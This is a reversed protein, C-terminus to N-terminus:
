RLDGFAAPGGRRLRERLVRWLFVVNGVVYRKWMRGPEQRLRWLWEMGIDRMWQPARPRLGSYFDFLGGVGIGVGAGTAALYDRLWKEQRPAGFAVLLIDPRARRIGALVAPCEEPPFYGHHVGCVRVEPHHEGIWDRVAEAVGPRAGLLFLRRRDRALAACLRPFMDTGNVNERIDQGLLRGAVKMGIGDALVLDAQNLLQRYDPDRFAINACDANVFCVQRGGPRRALDLIRRISEDMTLNDIRLGLLHLEEPATAVGEGYLMAPIARLLIGLDTKVGAQQVYEADHVWEGDFANNARRRIWWFCVLGPRVNQRRRVAATRADLDEPRLCRPGVFSMDGRLVNWLVPLGRLHLRDLLRAVRGRELGFRLRRFPVGWRGVAPDGALVPGAGALSAVVAVLFVPLAPLLFSLALSLDLLRKLLGTAELVLIWSVRRLLMRRRQARRGPRSLRAALDALQQERERRDSGEVAVQGAM